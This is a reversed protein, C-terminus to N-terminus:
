GKRVRLTRAIEDVVDEAANETAVDVLLTGADDGLCSQPIRISSQGKKGSSLTAKIGACEVALAETADAALAELTAGIKKGHGGKPLVVTRAVYTAGGETPSTLTAVLHTRGATAKALKAKVALVADGNKVTVKIIDAAPAADGAKDKASKSAADAAGGALVLGSAALAVVAMRTRSM